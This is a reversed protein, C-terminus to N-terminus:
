SYRLFVELPSAPMLPWCRQLGAGRGGGGVGGFADARLLVPILLLATGVNAPLFKRVAAPTARAALVYLAVTAGIYTPAMRLAQSIPAPLLGGAGQACDSSTVLPSSSSSPSAIPSACAIAASLLGSLAIAAAATWHSSLVSAAKAASAACSAEAAAGAAAVPSARAIAGIIHGTASCTLVIGGCCLLALKPLAEREPLDCVAPFLFAPVLVVPLSARMWASAPGLARQLATGARPVAAVAGLACLATVSAPLNLDCAALAAATSREAAVFFAVGGIVHLPGESRWLSNGIISSTKQAISSLKRRQPPARLIAHTCGRLTARATLITCWRRM